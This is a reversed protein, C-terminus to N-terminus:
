EPGAAPFVEAAPLAGLEPLALVDLAGAEEVRAVAAYGEPGPRRHVEVTRERVLVIWLEPIGAAAYRPAKVRRDYGATADAVEVVLLVDEPTPTQTEDLGPKLLALDPQPESHGALRVPNQVSLRAPVPELAYLRRAFVDTLRNVTFLHPTGIPSMAILRGDILEFRSDEDLIGARGLAHYEEVTFPREFPALLDVDPPLPPLTLPM